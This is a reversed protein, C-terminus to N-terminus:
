AAPGEDGVGRHCSGQLRCMQLGYAENLVPHTDDRLECCPTIGIDDTDRAVGLFQLEVACQEQM